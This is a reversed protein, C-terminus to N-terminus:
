HSVEADLRITETKRLYQSGLVGPLAQWLLVYAQLVERVETISGHALANGIRSIPEIFLTTLLLTVASVTGFNKFGYFIRSRLTYFLRRAKAQRSSGCGTHHCQTAALYYISWGAQRVRLSLDVDECYVFFREDFGKVERFVLNRVFLYAGIVHEIYRSELHDWEAYVDGPFAKKFLRSLGLMQYIYYRTRFGRSCSRSIKGDEDLLQVGLVGTRSNEQAEMWAVSKSLTNDLVKADPNLFLLYDAMSGEAGQNCAAGFGRNSNNRIIVLPLARCSIGATSHDSSANDVVVVRGLVYNDRRAASLAALCERLHDGTNWNVIIIDLIPEM